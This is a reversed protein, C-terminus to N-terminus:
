FFFGPEIYGHNCFCLSNLRLAQCCHKHGNSFGTNAIGPSEPALTKLGSNYFVRKRRNVKGKM